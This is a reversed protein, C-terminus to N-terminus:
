TALIVFDSHRIVFSHHFDFSGFANVSHRITKRPEDNSMRAEENVKSM